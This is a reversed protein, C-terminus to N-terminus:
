VDGDEGRLWVIVERIPLGHFVPCAGSRVRSGPRACTLVNRVHAQTFVVKDTYGVEIFPPYRGSYDRAHHAGERGALDGHLDESVTLLMARIRVTTLARRCRLRSRVSVCLRDCIKECPHRHREPQRPRLSHQRLHKLHEGLAGMGGPDTIPESQPYVGSVCRGLRM